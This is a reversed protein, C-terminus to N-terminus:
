WGYLPSPRRAPQIDARQLPRQEAVVQLRHVLEVRCEAREDVAQTGGSQEILGNHREVAVVLTVDTLFRVQWGEESDPGVVLQPPKQDPLAQRKENSQWAPPM